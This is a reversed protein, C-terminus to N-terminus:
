KGLEVTRKYAESVADAVAGRFASKELAMVGEITSGAPSCVADKLEGPHKGSDKALEGAGIVTQRAYKLAKDRPLGCRVGADAMAEIFMYVFAPGCGSIACASDILREEVRDLEGAKAMIAIFNKEDEETVYRNPCYVTMGKGIAVPTNPMIRIIHTGESFYSETKELRVGAAMNVILPLSSRKQKTINDSLERAADSIFQPKVGLFIIDCEASVVKNDATNCGLEKALSLARNEDRDCLYVFSGFGASCVAKAIAGGMNGAGIFGIKLM